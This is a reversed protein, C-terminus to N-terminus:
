SLLHQNTEPVSGSFVQSAAPGLEFGGVLTVAGPSVTDCCIRNAENFVGTVRTQAFLAAGSAICAVAPILIRLM